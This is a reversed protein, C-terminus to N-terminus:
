IQRSKIIPGFEERKVLSPCLFQPKGNGKFDPVLCPHNSEESRSLMTRSNRSLSIFCSSSIFPICILLSVTLTDRNASLM